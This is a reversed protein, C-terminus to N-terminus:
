REIRTKQTHAKFGRSKQKATRLIYREIRTKQTHAKFGPGSRYWSPSWLVKLGRKRLIPKSVPKIPNQRRMYSREIRTKQTHAKFGKLVYMTGNSCKWKWDENESYPSQFPLNNLTDAAGKLHKWDENESYPSQFSNPTGHLWQLPLREIRTKQTHAKFSPIQVLSCECVIVREIRTKQTHAKFCCM